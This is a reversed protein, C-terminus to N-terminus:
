EHEKCTMESVELRLLAVAGLAKEEFTWGGRGTVHEMIVELAERRAREDELIRVTGTGMVSQFRFTHACALAGPRLLHDTDLEFSVDGNKKILDIKRGERASHFYFVGKGAERRYGFNLPVIYARGACVLGLRCCDCRGIIEDIRAADTIERDKRRM